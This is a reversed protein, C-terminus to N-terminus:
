VVSKRDESGVYSHGLGWASERALRLAQAAGQTFRSEGM